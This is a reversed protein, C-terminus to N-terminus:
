ELYYDCERHEKVLQNNKKYRYDCDVLQFQTNDNELDLKFKYTLIKEESFNFQSNKLRPLNNFSITYIGNKVKVEDLYVEDREYDNKKTVGTRKIDQRVCGEPFFEVFKNVKKNYIFLCSSWAYEEPRFTSGESEIHLLSINTDSYSSSIHIYEKNKFSVNLKKKNKGSLFYVDFNNNFVKRLEKQDENITPVQTVKINDSNTVIAIPKSNKNLPDESHIKVLLKKNYQSLPYDIARIFIDDTVELNVNDSLPDIDLINTVENSVTKHVDNYSQAISNKNQSKNQNILNSESKRDSLEESNQKAEGFSCATVSLCISMSLFLLKINM